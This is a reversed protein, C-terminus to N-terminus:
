DGAAHHPLPAHALADPGHGPAGLARHEQALVEHVGAVVGVLGGPHDVFLDLADQAVLLVAGAGREGLVPGPQDRHRLRQELPLGDVAVLDGLEDVGRHAVLATPGPHRQPGVAGLLDDLRGAVAVREGVVDLLGMGADNLTGRCRWVVGTRKRSAAWTPNPAA